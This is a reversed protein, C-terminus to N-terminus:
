RKRNQVKEKNKVKRLWMEVKQDSQDKMIDEIRLKIRQLKQCEEIKYKITGEELLCLECLKGDKSM